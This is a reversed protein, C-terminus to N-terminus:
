ISNKHCYSLVGSSATESLTKVRVEHNKNMRVYVIVALTLRRQAAGDICARMSHCVHSGDFVSQVSISM